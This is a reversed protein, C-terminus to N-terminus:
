GSVISKLIIVFSSVFSRECSILYLSLAKVLSFQGLFFPGDDFKYLSNELYDLVPAAHLLFCQYKRINNAELLARFKSSNKSLTEGTEKFPDSKLSAWMTKIFTDTYKLLEEGFERKTQDEPFFLSPGEFSNDLYKILDLSEGIIKGYHELAPM